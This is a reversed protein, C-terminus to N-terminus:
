NIDSRSFTLAIMNSKNMEGAINLPVIIFNIM